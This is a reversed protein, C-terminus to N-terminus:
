VGKSSTATINVGVYYKQAESECNYISVRMFPAQVTTALSEGSSDDTSMDAIPERVYFKNNNSWSAEAKFFKSQQESEDDTIPIVSIVIIGYQFDMKYELCETSDPAVVVTRQSLM